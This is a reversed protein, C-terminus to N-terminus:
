GLASSGYAASVVGDDATQRAGLMQHRADLNWGQRVRGVESENWGVQLLGM